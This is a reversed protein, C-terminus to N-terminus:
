QVFTDGGGGVRERELHHLPHLRQLVRQAFTVFLLGAAGDRSVPVVCMCVKSVCVYKVVCLIM